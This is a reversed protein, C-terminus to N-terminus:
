LDAFHAGIDLENNFLSIFRKRWPPTQLMM